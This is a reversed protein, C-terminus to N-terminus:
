PHEGFAEVLGDGPRVWIGRRERDERGVRRNVVIIAYNGAILRLNLGEVDGALAARRRGIAREVVDGALEANRRSPQPLGDALM